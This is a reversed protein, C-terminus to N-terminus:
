DDSALYDQGRKISQVLSMVKELQGPLDRFEIRVTPLAVEEGLRVTEELAPTGFVTYESQSAKEVALVVEADAIAARTEPDFNPRLNEDFLAEIQIVDM